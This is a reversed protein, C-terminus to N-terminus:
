RTRVFREAENGVLNEAKFLCNFKDCLVLQHFDCRVVESEALPNEVGLQTKFVLCSSLFVSLCLRSRADSAFGNIQLCRQKAGRVVRGYGGETGNRQSAVECGFAAENGFAVESRLLKMELPVKGTGHRRRVLSTDRKGHRFSLYGM